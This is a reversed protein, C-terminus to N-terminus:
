RLVEASMKKGRDERAEDQSPRLLSVGNSRENEGGVPLSPIMMYIYINEEIPEM